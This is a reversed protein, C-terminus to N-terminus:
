KERFQGRGFGSAFWELWGAVTKPPPIPVTRCRPWERESTGDLSIARKFCDESTVLTGNIKITNPGLVCGLNHWAFKDENNTQVAREYWGQECSSDSYSAYAVGNWHEVEVMTGPQHHEALGMCVNMLSDAQKKQDHNLIFAKSFCRVRTVIEGKVKISKDKKNSLTLGLMCWAYVDDDKKLVERFCDVESYHATLRLLEVM